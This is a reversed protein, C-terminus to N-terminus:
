HYRSKYPFAILLGLLTSFYAHLWVWVFVYLLHNRTIVECRIRLPKGAYGYHSVESGEASVVIIDSMIDEFIKEDM